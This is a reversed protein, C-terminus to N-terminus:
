CARAQGLWYINYLQCSSGDNVARLTLPMEPTGLDLDGEGLAPNVAGFVIKMLELNRQAFLMHVEFDKFVTESLHPRAALTIPFSLHVDNGVMDDTIQYAGNTGQSFQANNAANFSATNVRTLPVSIGNDNLYSGISGAQDASMGNGEKGSAAGAATKNAAAVKFQKEITTTVETTTIEKGLRIGMLEPTKRPFTFSLTPEESEIDIDEIVVQGLDSRTRSIAETIGPALTIASPKPLVLQRTVSTRTDKISLGVLAKLGLNVNTGM